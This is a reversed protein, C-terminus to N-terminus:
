TIMFLNKELNDIESYQFILMCFKLVPIICSLICYINFVNCGFKQVVCSSRHSMFPLYVLRCPAVVWFVAM